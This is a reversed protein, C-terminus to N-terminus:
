SCVELDYWNPGVFGESQFPVDFRDADMVARLDQMDARWTEISASINIEDHVTAMFVTSPHRMEDWEIVCQKTQDAAGGQILYNLLKYEFRRMQGKILKPPETYYIRGGWTRIPRGAYGRRKTDKSLQAIGPFARFYADMTAAASGFDVGLGHALGRIGSGYIIRFATIKVHKRALELSSQALIIQQALAHPDLSPDRIYAELLAGDEYHAAIRVEQSSFDRKLWVHGEEPLLYRRMLPPEPLGMPITIEYENSINMLYPRSGSLRGTRTGVSGGGLDTRVQNWTTHLRGDAASDEHWPRMFTQLSTALAQRYALLGVTEPCSVAAKINDKATSRRGTPTLVWEGILGGSDLADAMCTPNGWDVSNNGVKDGLRQEVETLAYEYINLDHALRGTDCRVGTKESRYLVPMLRQERKYAEVMHQGEITPMLLRYLEYTMDVDACAYRGVLDGPAKCIHAAWEKNNAGEVNARIWAELEDQETSEINLLREANPKLKLNPSYPDHLFILYMTDHILLPDKPWPIDFWYAAVSLDFKSNHCLISDGSTLVSATEEKGRSWDCNNSVPHGWRLYISPGDEHKLAVGVPKPPHWSTNEEIGETEFDLTWV